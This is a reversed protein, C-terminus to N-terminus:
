RGTAEDAILGPWLLLGASGAPALAPLFTVDLNRTLVTGIRLCTRAEGGLVAGFVLVLVEPSASRLEDHKM